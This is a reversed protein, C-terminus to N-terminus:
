PENARTRQLSYAERIWAALEPDVPSGGKLDLENHFRTKSTREAKVVRDGTLQRSLVLTLRIGERRPHAGLFAARGTVFHVSQKKVETVVGEFQDLFEVLGCYALRCGDSRDFCEPLTDMRGTYQWRLASAARM